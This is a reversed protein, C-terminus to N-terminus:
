QGTMEATDDVPIGMVGHCAEIQQAVLPKTPAMFVIKSTPYWRYYNFMVVAAIFTKGLGTPLTVMTNRVLAQRVIQQQYERVPYNTPYIYIRGAEPDFGPLDEVRTAHIDGVGPADSSPFLYEETLRDWKDSEIFTQLTQCRSPVASSATALGAGSIQDVSDTTRPLFEGNAAQDVRRSNSFGALTQRSGHAATPAFTSEYDNRPSETDVNRSCCAGNVGQDVYKLSEEMAALLDEDNESDDCLNIVGDSPKATALGNGPVQKSPCGGVKSNKQPRSRTPKSAGPQRSQQQQCPSSSPYSGWSQFLTTQKTKSM